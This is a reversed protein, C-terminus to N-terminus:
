ETCGPYITCVRGDVMKFTSFDTKNGFCYADQDEFNKGMCRRWGNPVKVWTDGISPKEEEALRIALRITKGPLQDLTYAAFPKGTGRTGQPDSEKCDLLKRLIRPKGITRFWWECQGYIVHQGSADFRQKYRDELEKRVIIMGEDSSSDRRRAGYASNIELSIRRVVLPCGKVTKRITIRADPKYDTRWQSNFVPALNDRRDVTCTQGQEPEYYVAAVYAFDPPLDATFTFTNPPETACGASLAICGSLIALPMRRTKAPCLPTRRQWRSPLEEEISIM